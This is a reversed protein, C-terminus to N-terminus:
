LYLGNAFSIVWKLWVIECGSGYTQRRSFQRDHGSLCIQVREIQKSRGASTARLIIGLMHLVVRRRLSRKWPVKTGRLIMTAVLNSSRVKAIRAPVVRGGAGGLDGRWMGQDGSSSRTVCGAGAPTFTCDNGNGTAVGNHHQQPCGVVPVANDGQVRHHGDWWRTCACSRTPISTNPMTYKLYGFMSSVWHSNDMLSFLPKRPISLAYITHM